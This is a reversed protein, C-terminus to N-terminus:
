PKRRQRVAEYLLIGASVALNLSEVGNQMPITVVESMLELHSDTLGHAESGLVIATPQSWDTELYTKKGSIDAGIVQIGERDAWQVFEEIEARDWVALRLSSGMSSRLAKASFPDASGSSLIIGHVGAAEATRFIAGLNSPDAIRQLFIILSREKLEYIREPGTAPRHALLILGQSNATDAISKFLVEPVENVRAGRQVAEGIITKARTSRMAEPTVACETVALGARLVEECLRIGEAFVEDPVRGDRVKRIHILRPNDRSTISVIKEM